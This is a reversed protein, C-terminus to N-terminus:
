AQGQREQFSIRIEGVVTPSPRRSGLLFNLLNFRRTQVPPPTPAQVPAAPPAPPEPEVPEPPLISFRVPQRVSNYEPAPLYVFQDARPPRGDDDQHDIDTQDYVFPM